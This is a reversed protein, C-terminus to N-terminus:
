DAAYLDALRQRFDALPCVVLRAADAEIGEAGVTTSVVKLGCALMELTKLKVGAGRLLPVVGITCRQFYPTPDDVFGTVVCDEAALRRVAESPGSGVIYLKFKLGASRLPEFVQKHFQLVAEENEIRALAGWFLLSNPERLRPDARFDLAFPSLPPTEVDIDCSLAMLSALLTKDKDSLVVVRDAAAMVRRETRLVWPLMWYEISSQRAVAQTQIDHVVLEIRVRTGTRPRLLGAYLFTQSFELRVTDIDGRDIQAEIARLAAPSWRTLFRPYVSPRQLWRAAVRKHGIAIVQVNAAGCLAVLGAPAPEDRKLLLLVRVHGLARLQRISEFALRHGAQPANAAPAFPVVVLSAM